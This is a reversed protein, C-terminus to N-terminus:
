VGPRKIYTADVAFINQAKPLQKKAMFTYNEMCNM